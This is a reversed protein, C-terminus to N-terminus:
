PLFNSGGDCCTSEIRIGLVLNLLLLRLFTSGAQSLTHTFSLSLALTLSVHLTHYCWTLFPLATQNSPHPPIFHLISPHQREERLHVALM